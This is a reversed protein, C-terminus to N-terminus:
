SGSKFDTGVSSMTSLKFDCPITSAFLNLEVSWFLLVLAFVFIGFPNITSVKLFMAQWLLYIDAPVFNLDFNVYIGFIGVVPDCQLNCFYDLGRLNYDGIELRM